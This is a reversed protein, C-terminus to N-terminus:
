KEKVHEASIDTERTMTAQKATDNASRDAAMARRIRVSTGQVRAGGRMQIRHASRTFGRKLAKKGVTSRKETVKVQSRAEHDAPM